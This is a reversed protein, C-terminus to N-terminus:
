IFRMKRSATTSATSSRASVASPTKANSSNAPWRPSRSPWSSRSLFSDSSAAPASSLLATKPPFSKSASFLSSTRFSPMTSSSKKSEALWKMHEQGVTDAQLASSTSALPDVAPYIGLETLARSLVITSDLHAFVAAPAPDTIDDAPVYIAQVSTVAGKKTSTIREQLNGMESALTSQYGVASPMKGLLAAVESGAQSFRFINDIFLLVDKGEEDRFYEAMTLASLAVRARAGPVENMQGYVLAAKDIVKSEQMELLLDTGERTREGVGAFVSVGGSEEAVNRILEKLLVTKGVGAGGFLGVKGGRIFPALLDIVKIGTEFVETKTSQDALVPAPRHIPWRHKAVVPSGDLTQGFVNFLKGLVGPGVPVSIPSGTDEVRMGRKLGDTSAMAITRVQGFGLHRAVELTVVSGDDKKVLLANFIPPLKGEAFEADVVTGIIQTIKGTQNHGAKETPHEPAHGTTKELTKEM